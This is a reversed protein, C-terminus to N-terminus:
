LAARCKKCVREKTGKESVRHGVRAPHKCSPCVLMVNSIHIPRPLSVMEGKEGARKPRARKKYLNFGEVVCREDEPFARLVTGTKGRDKGTLIKVQDGKKINM